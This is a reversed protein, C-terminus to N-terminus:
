HGQEVKGKAKVEKYLQFITEGRVFVLRSQFRIKNWNVQIQVQLYLTREIIM